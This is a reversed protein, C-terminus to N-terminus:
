GGHGDETAETADTARLRSAMERIGINEVHRYWALAAGTMTLTGVVWGAYAIMYKRM